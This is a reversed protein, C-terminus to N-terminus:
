TASRGGPTDRHFAVFDLQGELRREQDDPREHGLVLVVLLGGLVAVPLVEVSAEDHV